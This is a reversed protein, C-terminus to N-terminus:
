GKPQSELFQDALNVADICAKLWVPPKDTPNALVAGYCACYLANFVTNTPSREPEPETHTSIGIYTQSEIPEAMQIAEIETLPNPPLSGPSSWVNSEKVVNPANINRCGDAPAPPEILKDEVPNPAGWVLEGLIGMAHDLSKQEAEIVHAPKKADAAEQMARFTAMQSEMAATAGLMSDLAEISVLRAQSAEDAFEEYEIGITLKKLKELGVSMEEATKGTFRSPYLALGNIWGRIKAVRDAEAKAKAAKEAEKRAEQASIQEDIPKELSVIVATIRKAEDNRLKIRAQDDENLKKRMKDLSTRLTVLEFRAARAAMDGAPTGVHFTVNEYKGRLDQLAAATATYETVETKIDSM